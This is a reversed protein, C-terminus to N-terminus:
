TVAQLIDEDTLCLWLRDMIVFKRGARRAREELERPSFDESEDEIGETRHNHSRSCKRPLNGENELDILRHKFHQIAQGQDDVCASLDARLQLILM